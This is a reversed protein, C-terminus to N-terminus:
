NKLLQAFLKIPLSESRGDLMIVAPRCDTSSSWTM